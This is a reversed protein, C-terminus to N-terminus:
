LSCTCWLSTASGLGPHPMLAAHVAQICDHTPLMQMQQQMSSPMGSRKAALDVPNQLMKHSKQM